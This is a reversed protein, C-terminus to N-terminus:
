CLIVLVSVIKMSILHPNSALFSLSCNTPRIGLILSYFLPAKKSSVDLIEDLFHQDIVRPETKTAGFCLTRCLSQVEQGYHKELKCKAQLKIILDQDKRTLADPLQTSLKDSEKLLTNFVFTKFRPYLSQLRKDKQHYTLTTFIKDIAWRQKPIVTEGNLIKVLKERAHITSCIATLGMRVQNNQGSKNNSENDSIDDSENDSEEDFEEDSKEDTEEEFENESEKNSELEKNLLMENM